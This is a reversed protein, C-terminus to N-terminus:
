TSLGGTSSVPSLVRARALDKDLSAWGVGSAVAAFLYRLVPNRHTCYNTLPVLEHGLDLKVAYGTQGSQLETAGVDYAWQVAHEWLQFYINGERGRRYDIGIFKNIARRELLFLLMFAVLAGTARERLLVFHAVPEAALAAFFEPTLREFKTKGREYTQWFLAFIERRVAEEPQVAISMVTPLAAKGRRLNRRLQYRKHHNLGGLYGDFSSGALAIRTGPFSVIRFLGRTRVLHDLPGAAEAPFDKWVIMSARLHRAREEIATQITDVVLGLTHGEVLGVTGEDSCPSGVFLTRQFRLRPIARGGIKLAAAIIPPALLDIPVDMQFTPVIGVPERGRELVGYAFRFQAELRGRELARYWWDGEVPPRFAAAWLHPPIEAASAVWRLSIEGM